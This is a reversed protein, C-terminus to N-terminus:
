RLVDCCGCRGRSWEQGLGVAYVVCVVRMWEEQGCISGATMLLGAASARKRSILTPPVRKM